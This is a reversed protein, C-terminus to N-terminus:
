ALESLFTRLATPTRYLHTTMGLAAAATINAPTDDILACMRPDVDLARCVLTFAAPDPKAVGLEASNFVVDVATRLGLADLHDALRSTANTLVAVIRGPRQQAVLEVVEPVLEGPEAAWAEVAPAGGPGYRGVLEARVGARWEEDSVSGTIAPLLRAADFAVAAMSGDPLGYTAELVAFSRKEWTRLVGDLDVVLVRIVM